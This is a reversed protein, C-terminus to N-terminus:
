DSKPLSRRFNTLLDITQKVDTDSFSKFPIYYYRNTTEEAIQRIEIGFPTIQAIKEESLIVWGKKNLQSVATLTQEPTNGRRKLKTNIEELPLSKEVWLLTLVDWAHGSIEYSRWAALHADDRFATLETLFQEIRVMMSAGAEPSNRRAHQICWTGPPEPAALCADSFDKLRSALDMMETVSLAQIGSMAAYVPQMIEKITRLGVATLTYSQDGASELLNKSQLSNLLFEYRELATYAGRIQLIKANVPEPHFSPMTLLLFFEPGSLGASICGDQLAPTYLPQLAHYASEIAPYLDKLSM